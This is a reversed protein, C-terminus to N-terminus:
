ALKDYPEPIYTSTTSSSKSSVIESIESSTLVKDSWWYFNRIESKGVPAPEGGGGVLGGWKWDGTQWKVGSANVRNAADTIDSNLKGNVYLKIDTGDNVFTINVWQGPVFIDHYVQQIQNGLGAALSAGNTSQYLCLGNKEWWTAGQGGGNTIYLIPSGNHEFLKYASGAVTSWQTSLNV